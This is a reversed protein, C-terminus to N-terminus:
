IRTISAEGTGSADSDVIQYVRRAAVVAAASVGRRHVREVQRGGAVTEGTPDAGSRLPPPGWTLWKKV